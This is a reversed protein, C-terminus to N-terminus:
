DIGGFSGSSLNVTLAAIISATAKTSNALTMPTSKPPAARPRAGSLQCIGM